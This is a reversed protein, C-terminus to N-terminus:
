KKRVRQIENTKSKTIKNISMECSPIKEYGYLRAVEEVLDEKIM